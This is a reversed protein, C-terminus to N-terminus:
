KKTEDSVLVMDRVERGRMMVMQKGDPSIAFAALLADHFHTVPEPASGVKFRKLNTTGGQRDLFYITENDPGYNAPGNLNFSLPAQAITKYTETEATVINIQYDATSQGRFNFYTIKKGDQSVLFSSSVLGTDTIKGTPLDLKKIKLHERVTGSSFYVTQGGPVCVGFAVAEDTVKVPNSGDKRARWLEGLGQANVGSWALWDGTSCGGAAFGSIQAESKDGARSVLFLKGNQDGAVITDPADWAVNTANRLDAIKTMPLNPKDLDAFPVVDLEAPLEYEIALLQKGDATASMAFSSYVNTDNTIPRLTGDHADMVGIQGTFPREPATYVVALLDNNLWSYNKIVKTPHIEQKLDGSAADLFQMTGFPDAATLSYNAITKGDPSWAPRTSSELTGEKLTIKRLLKGETDIIMLDPNADPHLVRYVIKTSDPSVGVNSDIDTAIVRPAGGLVPVKFLQNVAPGYSSNLVYYFYSGDPSFTVGRFVLPQPPVITTTSDTALHRMMLAAGKPGESAFVVYKGDPSITATRILAGDTLKKMSLQQFPQTRHAVLSYIGFAAAGLVLMAVLIATATGIKHRKAEAILVSSSPNDMRPTAAPTYASRVVTSHGGSTDRRLRKLDACMEAASQYRLDREKELAKNIVRELEAPVDPNLRVAAVPVRNLIADFIVASTTGKFPLVGTAMEYIVAGLSFLDTRRDLEEGRAQEPSMYAVTGVATGPSTLNSRTVGAAVHAHDGALKALGFDLVKAHGRDTIFINAPKIDRHIIGKAHAADLADAIELAIDLTHELPLPIGTGLKKDLTEGELLEMAIFQQGPGSGNGDGPQTEIAYITCINPHNLASAARAEREFRELTSADHALETPLCKLAVHRGLKLDEAEYVVGMGGRGIQRLVRFNGVTQGVM